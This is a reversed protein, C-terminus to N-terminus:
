IKYIAKGHSEKFKKLVTKLNRQAFFVSGDEFLFRSKAGAQSSNTAVVLESDRFCIKPNVVYAM